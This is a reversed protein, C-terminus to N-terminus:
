IISIKSTEAKTQFTWPVRKFQDRSSVEYESYNEEQYIKINQVEKKETTRFDNKQMNIRNQTLVELSLKNLFPVSNDHFTHSKM